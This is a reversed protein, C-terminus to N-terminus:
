RMDVGSTRRGIWRVLHTCRRYPLLLPPLTAAVAVIYVHSSTLSLLLLLMSFVAAATVTTAFLPRLVRAPATKTAAENEERSMPVTTPEKKSEAKNEITDERLFCSSAQASLVVAEQTYVLHRTCLTRAVHVWRRWPVSFLWRPYSSSSEFSVVGFVCAVVCGRPGSM